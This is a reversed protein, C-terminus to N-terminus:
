NWVIVGPDIPEFGDVEVSYYYFKEVEGPDVKSRGSKNENNGFVKKEFPSEDKKFKITFALDTDDIDWIVQEDTGYRVTVWPPEVRPKKGHLNKTRIKVKKDKTVPKEDKMGSCSSITMITFIVMALLLIFREM